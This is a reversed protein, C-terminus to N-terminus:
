VDQGPKLNRPKNDRHESYDLALKGNPWAHKRRPQATDLGPSEITTRAPNELSTSSEAAESPHDSVKPLQFESPNTREHHNGDM